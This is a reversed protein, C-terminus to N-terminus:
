PVFQWIRRKVTSARIILEPQLSIRCNEVSEGRILAALRDMGLEGIQLFDQKITTIGGTSYEARPQDDFGTVAIDEPVRIGRSRLHIIMWEAWGDNTTVIATPPNAMTVFKDVAKEYDSMNVGSWNRSISDNSVVLAPDCPLGVKKLGTRYGILREISDSKHNDGIFAIRKHGIEALHEIILQIGAVNDVAIYGINDPVKRALLAVTPLGAAAVKALEPEGASPGGWLLGDINGNLFGLNPVYKANNELWGTYTMVNYGYIGARRHIGVLMRPTPNINIDMSSLGFTILGVVNTKRERLAKTLSSPTFHLENIAKQIRDRTIDTMRGKGNLMNSVTSISVGAREAVDNITPRKRVPANSITNLDSLVKDNGNIEERENSDELSRHSIYNDEDRIWNIITPPNVNLRRGIEVLRVGSQYLSIAEKRIEDPYGRHRREIVYRHGCQRCLYRQVGLQMGAKVQRETEKCIPCALKATIYNQESNDDHLEM